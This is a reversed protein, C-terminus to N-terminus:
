RLCEAVRPEASADSASRIFALLVLWLAVSGCLLFLFPDKEITKKERNKQPETARHRVKRKFTTQESETLNRVPGSYKKIMKKPSEKKRQSTKAWAGIWRAMRSKSPSSCPNIALSIRDTDCDDTEGDISKGNSKNSSFRVR